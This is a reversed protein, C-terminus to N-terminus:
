NIFESQVVDEEKKEKVKEMVGSLLFSVLSLIEHVWLQWIYSLTVKVESGEAEVVWTSPNCVNTM